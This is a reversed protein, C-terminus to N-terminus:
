EDPVDEGYVFSVVALIIARQPTDATKTTPAEDDDDAYIVATSSSKFCFLQIEFKEVLEGAQQWNTGPHYEYNNTYSTALWYKTVPNEYGYTSKILVPYDTRDLALKGTVVEFGQARACWYDLQENTLDTIKM